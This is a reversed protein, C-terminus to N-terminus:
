RIWLTHESELVGILEKSNSLQQKVMAKEARNCVCLCDIFNFVNDDFYVRMKAVFSWNSYDEIRNKWKKLVFFEPEYCKFNSLKLYNGVKMKMSQKDYTNIKMSNFVPCKLCKLEIGNQQQYRILSKCNIAQGKVIASWAHLENSRMSQTCSYKQAIEEFKDKGLAYISMNPSIVHNRKGSPLVNELAYELFECHGNFNKMFNAANYVVRQEYNKENLLFDDYEDKFKEPNINKGNYKFYLIEVSSNTKSNVSGIVRLVRHLDCASNDPYLNYEKLQSKISFWIAKYYKKANQHFFEHTKFILHYGRGSGVIEYNIGLSDLHLKYNELNQRIKYLEDVDVADGKHADFDFAINCILNKEYPNVSSYVDCKDFMCKNIKKVKDVIDSTKYETEVKDKFCLIRSPIVNELFSM